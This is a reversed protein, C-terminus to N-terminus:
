LRGFAQALYANLANLRLQNELEILTREQGYLDQFGRILQFTDVLGAEYLQGYGKALTQVTDLVKRQGEIRARLTEHEIKWTECQIRITHLLSSEQAAYQALQTRTVETSATARPNWLSMSFRLGVNAGLSWDPQNPVATRNANDISNGSVGAVARLEPNLEQVESQRAEIAVAEKQSRVKELDSARRAISEALAPDVVVNEAQGLLEGFASEGTKLNAVTVPHARLDYKTALLALDRERTRRAVEVENTASAFEKDSQLTDRQSLHGGKAKRHTMENLERWKELEKERQDLTRSSNIIKLFDRVFDAQLQARSGREDSEQARLKARASERGLTDSGASWLRKSVDLGASLTKTYTDDPNTQESGAYNWSEQLMASSSLTVSLADAQEAVEVQAASGERSAAATSRPCANAVMEDFQPALFRLTEPVAVASCDGARASELCFLSCLTTIRLINM